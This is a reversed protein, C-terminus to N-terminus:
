SKPKETNREREVNIIRTPAEARSVTESDYFELVTRGVRIKDGDKLFQGRIRKGNVFTGNRSKEDRITWRDQHHVIRCHVKSMGADAFAISCSELRGLTYEGEDSLKWQKGTTAGEIARLIASM